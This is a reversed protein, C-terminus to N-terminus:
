IWVDEDELDDDNGEFLNIAEQIDEESMEEYDKIDISQSGVGDKKQFPEPNEGRELAEAEEYVAKLSEAIIKEDRIKEAEKGGNNYYDLWDQTSKMRQSVKELDKRSTMADLQESLAEEDEVVDLPDFEEDDFWSEDDDMFFEDDNVGKRAREVEAADEEMSAMIFSLQEDELAKFREDTPLVQFKDM